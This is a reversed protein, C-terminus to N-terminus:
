GESSYGKASYAVIRRALVGALTRGIAPTVVKVKKPGVVAWGAGRYYRFLVNSTITAKKNSWEIIVISRTQGRVRHGVVKFLEIAGSPCTTATLRSPTAKPM